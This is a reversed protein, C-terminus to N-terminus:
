PCSINRCFSVICARTSRTFARSFVRGLRKKIKKIKKKKDVRRESPHNMASSDRERVGPKERTKYFVSVYFVTREISIAIYIYENECPDRPIRMRRKGFKGRSDRGTRASRIGKGRPNRPDLYISAKLRLFFFITTRSGRSGDM